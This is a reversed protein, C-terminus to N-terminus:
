NVVKPASPDGNYIGSVGSAQPSMYGPVFHGTVYPETGSGSCGTIQFPVFSDVTVTTGTPIPNLDVVAIMYVQDPHAQWQQLVTNYVSGQEGSQIYIQDSISIPVTNGGTVLNSVISAGVQGNQFTTWQGGPYDLSAHQVSGICFERPPNASWYQNVYYKPIAFPFMGGDNITTPSPLIAITAGKAQMTNVGMISALLTHVPGNSGTGGDTKNITVKVAPIEYTTNPTYAAPNPYGNLNAPTTSATWRTDWYGAQVSTANLAAGDAYNKQVADTAQTVAYTWNLSTALHPPPQNPDLSLARAGALAGADAAKQLDGQVLVLQGIDLALAAISVFVVLCIAAIMAVSGAHDKIFSGYKRPM